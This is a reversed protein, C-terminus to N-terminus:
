QRPDRLVPGGTSAPPASVNCESTAARHPAAYPRSDRSYHVPNHMRTPSANGVQPNAVINQLGFILNNGPRDPLLLTKRDDAVYVFGAADGKPSVFPLGDADATALQLFPSRAIFGMMQDDLSTRNKVANHITSGGRGARIFDRLQDLTAITHVDVDGAPRRPSARTRTALWYGL